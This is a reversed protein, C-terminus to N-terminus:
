QPGVKSTIIEYITSEFDYYNHGKTLLMSGIRQKFDTLSLKKKNKLLSSLKKEILDEIIKNENISFENFLETLENDTISINETKLQNIIYRRSFGKNALIKAKSKSYMNERLYKKEILKEVTENIEAPFYGREHLKKTLKYKSYERISLLKISYTYASIKKM